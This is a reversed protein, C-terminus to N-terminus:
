QTSNHSKEVPNDGQGVMGAECFFGGLVWLPVLFPVMEANDPWVYFRHDIKANEPVVTRTYGIATTLRPDDQQDMFIIPISLNDINRGAIHPYVRSSDIQMKTMMVHEKPFSDKFERYCQLVARDGEVELNFRQRVWQQAAPRCDAGARDIPQNHWAHLGTSRNDAVLAHVM